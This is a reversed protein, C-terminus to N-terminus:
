PTAVARPNVKELADYYIYQSFPPPKALVTLKNRVLWDVEDKLIAHFDSDLSIGYRIKPLIYYAYFNALDGEQVIIDNALAQNSNYFNEAEVLARMFKELNRPQSAIATENAALLWLFDEKDQLPWVISNQKLTQKMTQVFPEWHAAGDIEGGFLAGPIRSADAFPVIKVSGYDVNHVGLYKSFFYEGETKPVLGVRKGTLDRPELIGADLQGIFAIQNSGAIVAVIKLKEGAFIERVIALPPAAAIDVAGRAAARVANFSNEYSRDVAVGIGNERFFGQKRALFILGSLETEEQPVAVTLAARPVIEPPPLGSEYWLVLGLVAVFGLVTALSLILIRKLMGSRKDHIKIFDNEPRRGGIARRSDSTM